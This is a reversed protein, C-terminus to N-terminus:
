HLDKRNMNCFEDRLPTHLLQLIEIFPFFIFIHIHILKSPDCQKVNHPLTNYQCNNSQQYPRSSIFVSIKFMHQTRGMHWGIGLERVNYTNSFHRLFLETM